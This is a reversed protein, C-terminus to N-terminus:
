EHSGWSGLNLTGVDGIIQTNNSGFQQFVQNPMSASSISDEADQTINDKQQSEDENIIEAEVVDADVTTDLTDESMDIEESVEYDEWRTVNPNFTTDVNFVKRDFKWEAHKHPRAHWREFTERGEENPLDRTIGFYWLGLLLSDLCVEDSGLLERKTLVHGDPCVHLATDASITDDRDVLTVLAQTLWLGQDETDIFRDVVASIRALLGFFDEKILKTFTDHHADELMYLYATTKKGPVCTRYNSVSKAFAKRDKPFYQDLTVIGILAQLFDVDTIGDSKGEWSDRKKIRPRFAAKSLALLTGGTLRDRPKVTQGM